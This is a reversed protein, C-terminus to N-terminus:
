RKWVHARHHALNAQHDDRLALAPAHALNLHLAATASLHPSAIVKGAGDFTVLGEDFAADWLSSLLLGNHVDLRQADTECDAWPRMHSARLLFIDTIGTLPCVGNWYKLLAARFIDQGIRVKQLREAETNGLSATERLYAELPLSPLSVSLRYVAGIAERLAMEDDLVFAAAHEHACPSTRPADLERAAGPHKVSLFYPGHESAGGLGLEGPASASRVFLWGDADENGIRFGHEDAAARLDSRLGIPIKRLRDVADM